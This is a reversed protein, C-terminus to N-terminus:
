LNPEAMVVKDRGSEKGKYLAKDARNLCSELTDSGEFVAVGITVSIKIGINKTLSVKLKDKVKHALIKAGNSQTSPLLILFEEGGWRAVRDDERLANRMLVAGESLARDGTEHGLADNLEKFNDFDIILLCFPTNARRHQMLSEEIYIMMGRRNPLGTLMDKHALEGLKQNVKALEGTRKEVKEELSHSFNQLEINREQLTMSLLENQQVADIFRIYTLYNQCLVFAVLGFSVMLATNIINLSYLIDNLALTFLFLTGLALLRASPRHNIVAKILGWFIYPMFLITLAQFFPLTRSFFAPPTFVVILSAVTCVTYILMMVNKKYEQRFTMHFYAILLLTTIYFTLFSIRANTAFSWQILETIHLVQSSEIERLGLLLCVLAIIIPLPDGPRLTFQILNLLAVTLFIGLLFSTRLINKYQEQHISRTEGLRISSWIGGWNYHYNSVQVTISFHDSTPEFLVINPNYEPEAIDPTDSVEGGKSMLNGDIYLRYATGIRPIKLALNTYKKETKVNVHYTAFGHKNLLQGDITSRKWTNPVNTYSSEIDSDDIQAPTLLKQWYFAWNGKLPVSSVNSLSFKSLDIDGEIAQPASKDNSTKSMMVAVNFLIFLLALVLLSVAALPLSTKMITIQGNNKGGVRFKNM